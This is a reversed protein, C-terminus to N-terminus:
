SSYGGDETLLCWVAGAAGARADEGPPDLKRHVRTLLAGVTGPSIALVDGIESYSLGEARLSLCELERATLSGAIHRMREKREVLAEPDPSTAPIRELYENEPEGHRSESKWRSTVCNRVVQFLWARPCDIVRGYRREVFYRFFAEQVTDRAEEQNRALSGAYRLLGSAIESYIGAVEQQLEPASLAQNPM